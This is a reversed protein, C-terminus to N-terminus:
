SWLVELHLVATVLCHSCCLIACFFFGATVDVHFSSKVVSYLTLVGFLFVPELGVFLVNHVWNLEWWDLM